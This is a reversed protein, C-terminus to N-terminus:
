HWLFHLALITVGAENSFNRKFRRFSVDQWPNEPSEASFIVSKGRGCGNFCMLYISSIASIAAGGQSIQRLVDCNSCIRCSSSGPLRRFTQKDRFRCNWDQSVKRLLPLEMPRLWLDALSDMKRNGSDPRTVRGRRLRVFDSGHAGNGTARLKSSRAGMGVLEIDFKENM